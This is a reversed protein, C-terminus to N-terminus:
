GNIELQEGTLLRRNGAPAKRDPLRVSLRTGPGRIFRAGTLLFDM